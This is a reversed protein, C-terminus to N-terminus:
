GPIYVGAARIAKIYEKTSLGMEEIAESFKGSAATSEARTGAREGEAVFERIRALANEDPKKQEIMEDVLARLSLNKEREYKYEDEPTSFTLLREKTEGQRMEILSDTTKNYAEKLKALAEDVHDLALLNEAEAKLKEAGTAVANKQAGHKEKWVRNQAALLAKVSELRAAFHQKKKAHTSSSEELLNVAEYMLRWAQTLSESAAAYGGNAAQARAEEYKAVAQERQAKAKASDSEKIKAAASSINLFTDIRQLRDEVREKTPAPAQAAQQAAADGAGLALAIAVTMWLKVIRAGM